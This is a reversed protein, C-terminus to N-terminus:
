LLCRCSNIHVLAIPVFQTGASRSLLTSLNIIIITIRIPYRAAINEDFLTFNEKVFIVTQHWKTCQPLLSPHDEEYLLIM